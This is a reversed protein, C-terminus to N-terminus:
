QGVRRSFGILGLIGSGLLYAAAPIPVTQVAQMRLTAVRSFIETGFYWGDGPWSMMVPLQYPLSWDWGFQSPVLGTTVEWDGPGRLALFRDNYGYIIGTGRWEYGAARFVFSVVDFQVGDPDPLVNVDSIKINGTLEHTTISSWNTTAFNMSGSVEYQIIAAHGTGAVVMSLITSWLVRIIKNM